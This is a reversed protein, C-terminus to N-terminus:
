KSIKKSNQLYQKAIPDKIYLKGSESVYINFTDPEKCTKLKLIEKNFPAKQKVKNINIHPNFELSPLEECNPKNDPGNVDVKIIEQGKFTGDTTKPPLYWAIGDLTSFSPGEGDSCDPTDATNVFSAFVKCFKSAGSPKEGEITESTPDLVSLSGSEYYVSNQLIEYITTSTINYAKRFMVVNTNPKIRITSICLAVLVAMVTLCVMMESLTFAKKM